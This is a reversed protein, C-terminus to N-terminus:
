ERGAPEESSELIIVQSPCGGALFPMFESEEATLIGPQIPSREGRNDSALRDLRAEARIVCGDATVEFVQPCLNQCWFCQICGPEIRVHTIAMAHILPTDYASM